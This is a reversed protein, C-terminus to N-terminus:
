TGREEADIRAKELPHEREMESETMTGTFFTANMPFTDPNFHTNYFHWVIIAMMALLGEYSHAIYSFGFALSPLHNGLTTPFWLIFGTIGMVITGWMDAYYDFKERFQFRDYQPPDKRIGLGYNINDIFDRVDKKTPLMSWSQLSFDAKKWLYLLYALHWFWNLVMTVGAVRHVSRAGDFGGFLYLVYHLWGVDAFHLPLGTLVLLTFTLALIGHQIRMVLTLRRYRKAVPHPPHFKKRIMFAILALAVLGISVVWLWGAGRVHLFALTIGAILSSFSMAILVSILKGAEPSSGPYFAKRRLDLVVMGLLSVMTGFILLQFCIEELLLIPSSQIRLRLHNAGSLAFNVKAGAHCKGCTAAVHRPNTPADADNPSLVGHLGHCDTCTATNQKGFHMVARGHFSQEYSSVAGTTMGYRAMRAADNHCSSCLAVRQRPTLHKPQSINHAEGGHCSLCTPHDGPQRDPRDHVSDKLSKALDSHCSKCSAEQQLRDMSAPSKITHSSGWHCSLCTPAEKGNGAHGHVSNALSQAIQTHCTKCSQDKQQLSVEAAKKVAHM